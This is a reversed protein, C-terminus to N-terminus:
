FKGLASPKTGPAAGAQPREIRRVTYVLREKSRRDIRVILFGSLVFLAVAVLFSLGVRPNEPLARFLWLYGGLIGALVAVLPVGYVLASVKLVSTNEVTFHVHDGRRVALAGSEENRPIWVITGNQYCANRVPCAECSGEAGVEVAIKGDQEEVVVGYEDIM